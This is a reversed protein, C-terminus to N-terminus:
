RADGSRDLRALWFALVALAPLILAQSILVWSAISYESHFRALSHIKSATSQYGFPQLTIAIELEKVAEMFTLAAGVAIAPATMRLVQHWRQAPSMGSVRLADRLSENERAIRDVVPLLAFPALKTAQALLMPLTGDRASGMLRALWGGDATATLWALALAMPPIFLNIGLLWMLQEPWGGRAGPRLLLAGIAAVLALALTVAGSTSLAAQVVRWSKAWGFWRGDIAWDVYQWEPALVALGFCLLSWGAIVAAFGRSANTRRIRAAGAVGAFQRPAHRAVVVAALWAIAVAPILALVAVAAAVHANQAGSWMDHFAVGFTHAGNREATGYDGLARAAAFMAAGLAPALLLPIWIARIRRAQAMGAAAAAEGLSPPLRSIAVRLAVYCWPACSFGVQVAMAQAGRSWDGLDLGAWAGAAAYPAFLMPALAALEVLRAGPFEYMSVAIAQPAAAAIAVVAAITCVLATQLLQAAFSGNFWIPIWRLTEANDTVASALLHALPLFAALLVCLAFSWATASGTAAIRGSLRM